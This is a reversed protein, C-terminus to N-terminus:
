ESKEDGFLEFKAEKETDAFEVEIRVMEVNTKQKGYFHIERKEKEDRSTTSSLVNVKYGVMTAFFKSAEELSEFPFEVEGYKKGVKVIYFEKKKIM